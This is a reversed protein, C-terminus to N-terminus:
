RSRHLLNHSIRVISGDDKDLRGYCFLWTDRLGMRSLWFLDNAVSNRSAKVARYYEDDQTSKM